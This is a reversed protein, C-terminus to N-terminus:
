VVSKRDIQSQANKRTGDSRVYGADARYTWKGASGELVNYTSYLGHDGIVQETSISLPTGPKPRKSVMNIVPAPEPGYLLSAGGRILQIDAISSSLPMAYLTPFGIWDSELPVGDQMVLVYESEQPNGLGRYSLNFQTPTPQQSVLVGPARALLQQLNNGIVAPQLDLHIVTTKKTVTIKTGAVEAMQHKLKAAVYRRWDYARVDIRPLNTISQPAPAATGKPVAVQRAAATFAALALAAALALPLAARRPMTPPACHPLAHKDRMGPRMAMPWVSPWSAIEVRRRTHPLLSPTGCRSPRRMDRRIRM